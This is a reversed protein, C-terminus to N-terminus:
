GLGAVVGSIRQTLSGMWEEMYCRDEEINTDLNVEALPTSSGEATPTLNNLDALLLSIDQM